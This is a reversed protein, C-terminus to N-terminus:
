LRRMEISAINQGTFLQLVGELTDRKKDYVLIYTGDITPSNWYIYLGEETMVEEKYITYDDTNQNYYVKFNINCGVISLVEVRFNDGYNFRKAKKKVKDPYHKFFDHKKWEGSWKGVYNQFYKEAQPESAVKGDCEVEFDFAGASSLCLIVLIIILFSNKCM